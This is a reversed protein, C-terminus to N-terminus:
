ALQGAATVTEGELLGRLRAVELAEPRSSVGLKRYITRTHSHITNFSLFLASAIERKTQGEGLSRLVDLERQTLQTNTDVYRYAPTISRAVDRARGALIGADVCEALLARADALVIRAARPGLLANRVPVLALLAQIRVFPESLRGLDLANALLRDAEDYRGRAALVAGLAIDGLFGHPTSVLDHELAIEVAGRAWREAQDLDGDDLSCWALGARAGFADFWQGARVTLTASEALLERASPSDGNLRLAWGLLM